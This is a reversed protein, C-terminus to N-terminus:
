KQAMKKMSPTPLLLELIEVGGTALTVDKDLGVHIPGCVSVSDLGQLKTM